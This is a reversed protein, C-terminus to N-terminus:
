ATAASGISGQLRHRWDIFSSNFSSCTSSRQALLDDIFWFTNLSYWGSCQCTCFWPKMGPSVLLVLVSSNDWCFKQEGKKKIGSVTPWLFFFRTRTMLRTSEGPLAKRPLKYCNKKRTASARVLHKNSILLDGGYAWHNGVPPKIHIRQLRRECRRHIHSMITIIFDRLEIKKKWCM